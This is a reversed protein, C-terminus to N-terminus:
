PSPAERQRPRNGRRRELDDMARQFRNEILEEKSERMLEVRNFIRREDSEMGATMRQRLRDIREQRRKPDQEKRITDVVQRMSPHEDALDTAAALLYDIRQQVRENRTRRLEELHEQMADIEIEVVNRMAQRFRGAMAPWRPSDPDAGHLMRTNRRIDHTAEIHRRILDALKPHKEQLRMLRRLQPIMDRQRGELAGANNRNVQELLRALQPIHTRAFDLLEQEEGPRLPGRDESRPLWPAQRVEERMPDPRTTPRQPGDPRRAPDAPESEVEDAPESEQSPTPTSPTQAPARSPIATGALWVGALVACYWCAGMMRRRMATWEWGAKAGTVVLGDIRAM